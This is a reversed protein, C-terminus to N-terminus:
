GTCEIYVGILYIGNEHNFCGHYNLSCPIVQEQSKEM